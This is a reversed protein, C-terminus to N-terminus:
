LPPLPKHQSMVFQVKKGMERRYLINCKKYERQVRRRTPKIYFKNNHYQQVIGDNRLSNVLMANAAAVPGKVFVTRPYLRSVCSMQFGCCVMLLVWYRLKTFAWKFNM